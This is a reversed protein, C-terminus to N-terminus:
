LKYQYKWKETKRINIFKKITTLRDQLNEIKKMDDPIVDGYTNMYYTLQRKARGDRNHYYERQKLRMYENIPQDGILVTTM